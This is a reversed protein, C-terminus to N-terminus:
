IAAGIKFIPLYMALVYAGVVVYVLTRVLMVVVNRQEEFRELSADRDGELQADLEERLRGLRGAADFLALRYDTAHPQHTLRSAALRAADTSAGAEILIAQYRLWLTTDYRTSWERFGPLNRLVPGVAELRLLRQKLSQLRRFFFVMAVLVLLFMPLVIWASGLLARTFRPLATGFETFISDLQPLVFLTYVGVVLALLVMVGTVYAGFTAAGSLAELLRPQLLRRSREYAVFAREPSAHSDRAAAILAALQPRSSPATGAFLGEIETVASHLDPALAERLRQAAAGVEAGSEFEHVFQRTVFDRLDQQSEVSYVSM